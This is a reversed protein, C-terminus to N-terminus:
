EKCTEYTFKYLGNSKNPPFIFLKCGVKTIGPAGHHAMSATIHVVCANERNTLRKILDGDLVMLDIQRYILSRKWCGPSRLYKLPGSM